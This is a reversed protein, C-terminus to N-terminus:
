TEGRDDDSAVMVADDWSLGQREGEGGVPIPGDIAMHPMLSVRSVVWSDGSEVIEEMWATGCGGDCRTISYMLVVRDGNATRVEGWDLQEWAWESAGCGPCGSGREAVYRNCALAWQVKNKKLAGV